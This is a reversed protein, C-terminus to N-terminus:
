ILHTKTPNLTDNQLFYTLPSLSQPVATQSDLHLVRLEKKLVMDAELMSGPMIIIM